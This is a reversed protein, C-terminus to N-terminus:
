KALGDKKAKELVRTARSGSDPHSSMMKETKSRETGSAKEMDAFKQFATALATVKYHHTKMFEYAYDDAESEQKRNYKSDLLANAFTGLESESLSNVVGSQSSAAEAIAARKYASRIADRTDKNAVHGVEHGIIGLLEDDSMIDMLSSFVRVSGDACAFANVDKVKYVKYNLQLGGENSHKSFIKNLRVTYPDGAPAVPNHADMWTVAEKALKAADADSFTAAKLGKQAAGIGKANLKIQASLPNIGLTLTLGMLALPLAKLNMYQNNLKNLETKVQIEQYVVTISNQKQEICANITLAFKMLPLHNHTFTNKGNTDPISKRLLTYIYLRNNIPKLTNNKYIKWM